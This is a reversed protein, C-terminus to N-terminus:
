KMFRTFIIDKGSTIKLLYIGKQLNETNINFSKTQIGPKELLLSGKSDYLVLSWPKMNNNEVILENNVPVPYLKVKANQFERIGVTFSSQRVILVVDDLNDITFTIKAEREMGTKNHSGAVVKVTNDGTGSKPTLLCWSQDSTATWPQNTTFGVNASSTAVSDLYLTDVSLNFYPKPLQNVTIQIPSVGTAALTLTAKRTSGTTNESNASVAVKKNKSGSSPSINCWTQDSNIAWSLNSSISLTDSSGSQYGLQVFQSSVNLISLKQNLRKSTYIRYEGPGLFVPDNLNAVSISDDNIYDYWRGPFPFNPYVNASNVDFNGIVTVSMSGHILNIRKQAGSLDMNTNTTELADQETKLKALAAYIKYLNTRRPESAYDWRIPKNGTRGNVDISYDYGLEEFQYIMKPGPITFFFAAALEARKLAVATDKVNHSSNSSNGYNINRYMMREEDHSEMYTVLNPNNWGRNKYYAWSIDSNTGTVWGMSAEGYAHNLNGWPMMGYNSLEKEESNEAFHELIVYANPNVSWMADAIRKLIKIRSADYQGWAATNGLTNNQTFGKSLDFRYGDVKYEDLWFKVVSDVFMKTASSEHNFDYGVNFDHKAVQNYFPSNAAPRNNAADWYMKVMPSQGFSHNLVMDLVVAIGNAHCSDILEKLKNKTGYYKDPAFYFSPNYGWSLNGDFENVPMLEIANIGLRKLYGLTDIVAQYNHADTFDRVLLEYLILDTKKPLTFSTTAWTYTSPNTNFVSVISTTKGLPYPKLNPYTLTDIFGDNWPDLVLECYPDATKISNDIFYQYGYERGPRLGNITLWFYTNDPTKNMYYALDLEWNSFDGIAFVYNKGPAYLVLTVTSDNIVNIGNHTGAPLAAVTPTTRVLYSFTDYVSATSNKAEVSVFYKGSSTAILTDEMPGGGIVTKNLNGNIFLKLTDAGSAVAKVFITDNQEVLISNDVPREFYVNLGPKFVTIYIDSFDKTKGELWSGNVKNASRFVFAMKLITDTTPVGYYTRIDPTIVLKYYDTSIRTLKTESTNQGWNTKVYKWDSGSTSKDTIVGTHAYVDGTYGALGASGESADFYVTLPKNHEPFAPVTTILQAQSNFLTVALTIILTLNRRFHQTM